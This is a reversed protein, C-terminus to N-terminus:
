LKATAMAAAAAAVLEILLQRLGEQGGRGRPHRARRQLAGDQVPAQSPAAPAPRLLDAPTLAGHWPTVHSPRGEICTRLECPGGSPPSANCSLQQHFPRARAVGRTGVIVHVHLLPLSLGTCCLTRHLHPCVCQMRRRANGSLREMRKGRLGFRGRSASSRGRCAGASASRSTTGTGAASARRSTRRSTGTGSRTGARPARRLHM